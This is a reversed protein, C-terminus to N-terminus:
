CWWVQFFIANIKYQKMYSTDIDFLQEGVIVFYLANGFEARHGGSALLISEAVPHQVFSFGSDIIYM